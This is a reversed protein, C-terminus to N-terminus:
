RGGKRMFAQEVRDRWQDKPFNRAYLFAIVEGPGFGGRCGREVDILAKQEGYVHRYVEYAMLAVSEHLSDLGREQQQLPHFIVEGSMVEGGMRVRGLLGRLLM